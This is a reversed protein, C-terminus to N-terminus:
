ERRAIRVRHLNRVGRGIVVRARVHMGGLRIIDPGFGPRIEADVSVRIGAGGVPLIKWAMWRVACNLV